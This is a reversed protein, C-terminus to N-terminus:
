IRRPRQLFCADNVRHRSGAFFIGLALAIYGHRSMQVDQTMTWDEYGLWIAGALIGLLVAIIIWSATKM